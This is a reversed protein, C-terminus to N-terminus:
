KRNPNHDDVEVKIDTATIAMKAEIAKKADALPDVSKAGAKPIPAATKKAKTTRSIKMIDELQQCRM